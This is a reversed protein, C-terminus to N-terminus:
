KRARGNARFNRILKAAPAATGIILMPLYKENAAAKKNIPAATNWIGTTMPSKDLTPISFELKKLLFRLYATTAIKIIAAIIV